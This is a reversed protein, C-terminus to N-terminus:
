KGKDAYFVHNKYEAVKIMSKAWRPEGFARINEWHTGQHLRNHKSEDWAQRALDWVWEPENDVHKASLGYVGNLTGRNRIGIAVMLMGHYGEGSSEGIIARIAQETPIEASECSVLWLCSCGVVVIALIFSIILDKLQPTM